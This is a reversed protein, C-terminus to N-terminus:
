VAPGPALEVAKSWASRVWPGALAEVHCHELAGGVCGKILHSAPQHLHQSVLGQRQKCKATATQPRQRRNVKRHSERVDRSPVVKLKQLLLTMNSKVGRGGAWGTAAPAQWPPGGVAFWSSVGSEAAPM